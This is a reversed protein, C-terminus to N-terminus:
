SWYVAYQFVLMYSSFGEFFSNSKGLNKQNITRSKTWHNCQVIKNCCRPSPGLEGAGDEENSHEDSGANELNDEMM